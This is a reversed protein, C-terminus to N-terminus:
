GYSEVSREIICMTKRADEAASGSELMHEAAKNDAFFPSRPPRSPCSIVIFETCTRAFTTM